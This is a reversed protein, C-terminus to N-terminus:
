NPTVTGDAFSEGFYLGNSAGRALVWHKGGEFPVGGIVVPNGSITPTSPGVSIAKLTGTGFADVGDTASVQYISTGNRYYLTSSNFSFDDDFEFAPDSQLGPAGSPLSVSRYLTHGPTGVADTFANNWFFTDYLGYQNLSNKARVTIIFKLAFGGTFSIAPTGVGTWGSPLTPGTLTGSFTSHASDWYNGHLQGSDDLYVVVLEGNNTAVAPNGNINYQTQDLAAWQTQATPAPANQAFTWTGRSWFLRRDTSGDPATAGKALLVFPYPSASDDVFGCGPRGGLKRTGGYKGWSGQIGSCNAIGQIANSSDRTFTIDSHGLNPTCMAPDGVGTSLAPIATLYKFEMGGIASVIAESRTAFDAPEAGCGLTAALTVLPAAFAWSKRAANMLHRASRVKRAVIRRKM